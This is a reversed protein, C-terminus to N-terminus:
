DNMLAFFEEERYRPLFAGAGVMRRYGRYAQAESKIGNLVCKRILGISGVLNECGWKDAVYKRAKGDDTGILVGLERGIAICESEGGGLNEVGVLRTFQDAPMADSDIRDLVDEVAELITADQESVEGYVVDGVLLRLSPIAKIYEVCGSKGINILTCADIVINM